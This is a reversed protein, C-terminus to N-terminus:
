QSAYRERVKPLSVKRAERPPGTRYSRATMRVRAMEFLSNRDFGGGIALDALAASHVLHESVEYGGDSRPIFLDSPPACSADRAFVGGLLQILAEFRLQAPFRNPQDVEGGARRYGQTFAMVRNIFPDQDDFRIDGRREIFVRPQLMSSLTRAVRPLFDLAALGADFGEKFPGPAAPPCPAGFQLALTQQRAKKTKGDMKMMERHSVANAPNM